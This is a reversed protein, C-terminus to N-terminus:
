PTSISGGAKTDSSAFSWCLLVPLFVSVIAGKGIVQGPTWSLLKGKEEYGDADDSCPKGATCTRERRHPQFRFSKIGAAVDVVEVCQMLHESSSAGGAVGDSATLRSRKHIPIAPNFPSLEKMRMRLPNAGKAEQVALINIRVHKGTSAGLDIPTNGEETEYVIHAEGSVQLM